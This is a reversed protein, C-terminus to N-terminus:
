EQFNCEGPKKPLVKASKGALRLLSWKFFSRSPTQMKYSSVRGRGLVGGRFFGDPAGELVKGHLRRLDCPSCALWLMLKSKNLKHNKVSEVMTFDGNKVVM